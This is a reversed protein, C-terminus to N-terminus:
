PINVALRELWAALLHGVQPLHRRFSADAEEVLELQGGAAAVSAALSVRGPQAEDAPFIALLPVPLQELAEPAVAIPDVLCVGWVRTDLRQLALAVEAAAGLAAVAVPAGAANESAVQLAAVADEVLAPGNGQHGQSAGVGRFNFRLTPHGARAAAWALEACVVHDMGGGDEPRPPLILLPPRAKGRHAIGEMVVDGVPVLTPRELFQGSQVM